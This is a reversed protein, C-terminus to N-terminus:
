SFFLDLINNSLLSDQKYFESYGCSNCSVVSYRQYHVDLMRSLVGGTASMETVSASSSGCKPCGKRKNQSLTEQRTCRCKLNHDLREKCIGCVDTMEDGALNHYKDITVNSENIGWYFFRM